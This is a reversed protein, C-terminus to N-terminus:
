QNLRSLCVVPAKQSPSRQSDALYGLHFLLLRWICCLPRYRHISPVAAATAQKIFVVGVISSQAGALIMTWQAGYTRWRRVGTILQFLGALVAWAGFVGLVTNMSSGITLAVAVGAIVSIVVNLAQSSNNILAATASPM